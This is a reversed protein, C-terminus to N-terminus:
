AISLAKEHWQKADAPRGFQEEARAMAEMAQSLAPGPKRELAGIAQMLLEKAPATRRANLYLVALRVQAEATELPNCGVQRARLALLREFEEVAGDIDGSDELSAALHHLDQTAEHSDPGLTGRHIQLARRLHRQAEAHEGKDRFLMGLEALSNATEVHEAGYAKESLAASQRFADMAEANREGKLLATGLKRSCKALLANDPKSQSSQLEMIERATQEAETYKGQDLQIDMLADLARSGLSYDRNALQIALDATQEAEAFKTQRRQAQVLGLLLELRRKSSHRREALAATLHKEAETWNRADLHRQGEVRNMHRQRHWAQVRPTAWAAVRIGLRFLRTVSIM